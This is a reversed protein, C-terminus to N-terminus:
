NPSSTVPTISNGYTDIWVYEPNGTWDHSPAFQSVPSPLTVPPWHLGPHHPPPGHEVENQHGGPPIENWFLTVTVQFSQVPLGSYTQISM